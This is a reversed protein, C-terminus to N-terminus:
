NGPYSNYIKTTGDAGILFVDFADRSDGYDMGPTDSTLVQPVSKLIQVVSSKQNM